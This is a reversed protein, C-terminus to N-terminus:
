PLRYEERSDMLLWAVAYAILTPTTFLVAAAAVAVRIGLPRMRLGRAIGACVGGLYAERTDRLFRPPRQHHMNM